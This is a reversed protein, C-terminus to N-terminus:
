LAAQRIHFRVMSTTKVTNGSGDIIQAKLNHSGVTVNKLTLRGVKFDEALARGDVFYRIAHSEQLKPTISIAIVVEGKASYITLDNAPVEIEFLTYDGEAQSPQTVSVGKPFAMEVAGVHPVDSYHIAGDASQWKYISAQLPLSILLLLSTLYRTM